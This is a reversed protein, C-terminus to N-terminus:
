TTTEKDEESQPKRFLNEKDEEPQPKRVLLMRSILGSMSLYTIAFKNTLLYSKVQDYKLTPLKDATVDLKVIRGDHNVFLKWYKQQGISSIVSTGKCHPCEVDGTEEKCDIKATCFLCKVTHIFKTGVISCNTLETADGSDPTKFSTPQKALKFSTTHSTHLEEVNNYIGKKLNCLTYCQKDTLLTAYERWLVIKIFENEDSIHGRRMPIEGGSTMVQEVEDLQVVGQVNVYNGVPVENVVKSLTTIEIQYKPKFGLVEHKVSTKEYIKLTGDSYSQAQSISVGIGIAEAEEFLRRKRPAHCVAKVVTGEEVEVNLNFYPKSNKSTRVPSMNMIYGKVSVDQTDDSSSQEAAKRKSM